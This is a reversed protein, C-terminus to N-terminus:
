VVEEIHRCKRRFTFGPCNCTIRGEWDFVTYVAKSTKSAFTDVVKRKGVGSARNREFDAVRENAWARLEETYSMVM